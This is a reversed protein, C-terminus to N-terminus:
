GRFFLGDLRAEVFKDNKSHFLPRADEVAMRGTSTLQSGFEKRAANIVDVRGQLEHCIKRNQDKGHNDFDTLVAVRESGREVDEVLSELSREASLFVKGTFGLRVLVQKDMFGEVIAADVDRDLKEVVAELQKRERFKETDM